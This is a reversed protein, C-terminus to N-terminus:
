NGEGENSNLEPTQSTIKEAEELGKEKITLAINELKSGRDRIREAEDYLDKVGAKLYESIKNHLEKEDGEIWTAAPSNHLYVEWKNKEEHRYIEIETIGFNYRIGDELKEM